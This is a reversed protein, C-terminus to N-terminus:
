VGEKIGHAQSGYLWGVYVGFAITGAFRWDGTEGLAGISLYSGTIIAASAWYSRSGIWNWITKM